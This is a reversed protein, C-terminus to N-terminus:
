LQQFREIETLINTDAFVTKNEQSLFLSANRAYKQSLVSSVGEGRSSCYQHLQTYQPTVTSTNHGQQDKDNESAIFPIKQENTEQSWRSSNSSNLNNTVTFSDEDRWDKGHGSNIFTKQKNNEQPWLTSNSSDLYEAHFSGNGQKWSKESRSETTKTELDYSGHRNQRFKSHLNQLQISTKYKSRQRTTRHQSRSLTQFTDGVLRSSFEHRPASRNQRKNQQASSTNCGALEDQLSTKRKKGFFAFMTNPRSSCKIIRDKVTNKYSKAETQQSLNSMNRKKECFSLHWPKKSMPHLIGDAVGMAVHPEFWPGLYDWIKTHGEESEIPFLNQISKSQHCYVRQHRFTRYAMWFEEEFGNSYRGAMKLANFIKSPTRHIRVLKHATSIGIGYIGGCYDCGSLICMFVFMDHNWNRFNPSDNSPLDRMLQVEEGKSAQFDLKFLIRPCGYVLLDSDETIVLDVHGTHALKAMQADAEYPAILTSIDRRKCEQILEYRMKYTISCSRSYLKRAYRKDGNEEAQLAKVYSEQREIHRAENIEEKVPLPAGDIVLIIHMEYKKKLMEANKIVYRVCKSIEINEMGENDQLGDQINYNNSSTKSASRESSDFDLLQAVDDREISGKKSIAGPSFHRFQAKALVCVDAAHVGKHLWCMADVAANLGRYRELSSTRTISQLLPLLGNIGM